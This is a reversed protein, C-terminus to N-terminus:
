ITFMLIVLEIIVSVALAHSWMFMERQRRIYMDARDAAKRSEKLNRAKFLAEDTSQRIKQKLRKALIFLVASTVAIISISILQFFQYGTLEM